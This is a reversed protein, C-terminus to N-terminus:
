HCKQSAKRLKRCEWPPLPAPDSWIGIRLARADQEVKSYVERQHASLENGFMQAYWAYGHRILEECVDQSGVRVHCVERENRDLKYCWVTTQKGSVLQKLHDRAARWYAQGTEPTDAGSLRVVLLGRESTQLKLTDGDHNATVVGTTEFPPHPGPKAIAVSIWVSCALASLTHKLQLRHSSIM